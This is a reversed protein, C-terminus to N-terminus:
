RISIADAGLDDQQRGFARGVIDDRRPQIDRALDDTLPAFSEEM